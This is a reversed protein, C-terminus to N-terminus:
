KRKLRMKMKTGLAANLVTTLFQLGEWFIWTSKYSDSLGQGSKTARTKALERGLQARLSTIKAKIDAVSIDLARSIEQFAKERAARSYYCKEYINWLCARGELMEILDSTERETWTKRPSKKSTKCLLESQAGSEVM